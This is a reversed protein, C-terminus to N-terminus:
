RQFARIQSLIRVYIYMGENYITAVNMVNIQSFSGEKKLLWLKQVLILYGKSFFVQQLLFYNEFDLLSM